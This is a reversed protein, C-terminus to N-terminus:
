DTLIDRFRREWDAQAAPEVAALAGAVRAWTSVVSAEAANARYRTEWVHRAVPTDLLDPAM